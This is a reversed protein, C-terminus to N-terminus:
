SDHELRHSLIDSGHQLAIRSCARGELDDKAIGTDVGYPGVADGMGQPPRAPRGRGPPEGVQATKEGTDLDMGRGLQPRPEEDVVAHADDDSLCGLDSLVHTEELAHGQPARAVLSLLAMGGEAVVDHHSRPGLNEPAERYPRPT